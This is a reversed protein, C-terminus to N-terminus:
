SLPPKDERFTSNATEHSNGVHKNNSINNNSSDHLSDGLRQAMFQM